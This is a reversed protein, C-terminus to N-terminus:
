AESFQDPIQLTYINSVYEIDTGEKKFSSTATHRLGLKEMVRCSATNEAAVTCYFDHVGQSQAFDILAQGMETAYGKGRYDQHVDYGFGWSGEPGEAGIVCTAIAQRSEKLEAIFYHEDEWANMDAMMKRLEDGDAYQPDALYQGDVPDGWLLAAFDCDDPTMKRLILRKTYITGDM